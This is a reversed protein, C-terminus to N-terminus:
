DEDASVELDSSDSVVICSAGAGKLEAILARNDKYFDRKLEQPVVLVVTVGIRHACAGVLLEVVERELCSTCLIVNDCSARGLTQSAILDTAYAADVDSSTAPLTRTFAELEATHPVESLIQAGQTGQYLVKFEMNHAAALRACALALEVIGDTCGMLQEVDYAPAHFDMIISASSSVSAEFLRTQLEDRRASLKWHISKLPDGFEYDRVGAYDVDDSIVTRVPTRSEHMILRTLEISDISVEQPTSVISGECACDVTKHLLGFPDLLVVSKIGAVYTGVHGMTIDADIFEDSMGDFMVTAPADQELVGHPNTVYFHPRANVVPLRSRNKLVIPMECSTMRTAAHEEFRVDVLLSKSVLQLYGWACALLVLFAGLPIYGIPHSVFIPPVFCLVLVVVIATAQRVTLRRQEGSAAADAPGPTAFPLKGAAKDLITKVESM